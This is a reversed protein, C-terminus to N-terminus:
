LRFKWQHEESFALFSDSESEPNTVKFVLSSVVTVAGEWYLLILAM